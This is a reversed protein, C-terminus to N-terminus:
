QDAKIKEEKIEQRWQESTKGLCATRISLRLKKYDMKLSDLDEEVNNKGKRLKEAEMKHIDVDLGLRMKEEELQEIKKGLESSKKEFDQKIIDLESPVVQLHEEISRVCEERPELINDNIRKSWWRHYEPTTTARVTFRKMRHIQKWANSMERIKGRYNNGRYSFEYEALGQIALIFQRSRYQRLVLLLTYGVAEWIGLLPVWDFNGCRYLIKDPVIWSAKWEVDEDQLNQLIAMLRERTIDDRRPTAALEKLPSYNESFVQYSVKDVKWFQSHFWVLLLQAYGIFRGEGTRQCASLSRFTEVLIAPVPTVRRDLQDFLNTVAEDIHGLARPFIVLGYISLAFVDVKKKTDPHALIQDQLSKWPICKNEGKQKIRATVWQESM